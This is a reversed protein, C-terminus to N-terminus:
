PMRASEGLTDWMSSLTAQQDRSSFGANDGLHGEELKYIVFRDIGHGATRPRVEIRHKGPQYIRQFPRFKAHSPEAVIRYDFPGKPGGHFGKTFGTGLTGSAHPAEEGDAFRFFSDNAGDEAGAGEKNRLVMHYTGPTTIMFELAIVGSGGTSEYYGTGTAGPDNTKLVWGSAIPLSEVEAVVIGDKEIFPGKGAALPPRDGGASGDARPAAGASDARPGDAGGDAPARGADTSGPGGSGGM